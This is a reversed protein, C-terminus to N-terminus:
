ELLLVSPLLDPYSLRLLEYGIGATGQFFGPNYVDRLNGAFLYFAGAHKARAVIRAAQRQATKRLEPRSLGLAAVLLTELRGFNGCCLHDLNQLGVKQTTNLAVAIDQRIQATDLIMLSGLRALGIGAAGHCWSTMFSPKQNKLAFSRLDPWNGEISSFVSREYAIAEEAGELFVPDQTTKYLRLLAYAIGAAGHSFGTLLNNELTSWTRHASNSAVRNNLLYYGCAAAQELIDPELTAQYLALLGLITGGTGAMLDFHRDSVINEQSIQSAAIRALNILDPENLFQGIRVLAYVISGVGTAGGIGIQKIIECRSKSETVQLTKRLHQLAGLALNRFELNGTIKSLAALFLAVGCVGDYLGYGLPQLQLREAGPMYQMGIWTVSGDAGYIARQQLEQAIEVAEQVMQSRTLPATADLNPDLKADKSFETGNMKPVFRLCLSARIIAIQQALNQKNLQRLNAIVVNYSPEKFYGAIILDPSVTLTDSDSDATFYPIDLQELAQQEAALLSWASPKTNATLFARSLVDLEISRDIGHQLFNPHLTKVLISAYVETARFVFRVRQHALAALPSDTLLLTERRKMLFQYMQQFGDVIEDVYDNPSLTNGNLSPANIQTPTTTPTTGSEYELLMNDANIHRWKPIQLFIEQEGVGGFGSVDYAIQGEAKFDWRPLLGVKLVSDEILQQNALFQAEVEEGRRALDVVRPHILTEMDILVPHEGSAMLNEQHCDTGELVYLLCLLMGARQYYRRAAAKDECPAHEVYEVWGHTTCNIVKLLRLPLLIRQQNCWSLLKFYAVELALNKPKYILKLGSAFTLSVVSRWRNHPDSLFPEIAVVQGIDRLFTQEITPVDSRLRQLFEATAEVWFDIAIAVLRALVSYKQFFPLLGGTTLRKVFDQYQENSVSSQLQGLLRSLSSQKLARFASFELQLCQACISALHRLLSRELSTHAEESLLQYSTDTQAILKQRAVRVFLLFIEEFPIPDESNLCRDSIADGTELDSLLIERLTETWSPLKQENALRVSGLIQSITEVDLEDWALRKVFKEQNGKAVARCWKEIRSNISKHHIQEPNLIFRDSLREAITSAREVIEILDQQSVKM